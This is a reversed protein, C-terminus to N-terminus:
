EAVKAPDAPKALAKWADHQSLFVRGNLQDIFHTTKLRGMVPGKMELLHLGVGSGHAPNIAELSEFASYGTENVASCMLIVHRLADGDVVRHQILGEFFRANGQAPWPVACELEALFGAEPAVARTLCRVLRSPAELSAHYGTVVRTVIDIALTMGPVATPTASSVMSLSPM